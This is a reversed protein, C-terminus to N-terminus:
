YSAYTDNIYADVDDKAALEYFLDSTIGDSLHANAIVDENDFRSEVKTKSNQIQVNTISFAFGVFASLLMKNWSM